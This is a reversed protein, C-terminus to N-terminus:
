EIAFHNIKKEDQNTLKIYEEMWKEIQYATFTQGMSTVGKYILFEHITM